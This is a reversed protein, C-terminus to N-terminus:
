FDLLIEFNEYYNYIDKLKKYFCDYQLFNFVKKKKKM